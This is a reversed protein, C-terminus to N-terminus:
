VAYKYDYDLSVVMCSRTTGGNEVIESRGISVFEGISCPVLPWLDFCVFESSNALRAAKKTHRMAFPELVEFSGRNPVGADVM